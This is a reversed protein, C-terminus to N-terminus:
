SLIGIPRWKDTKQYLYVVGTFRGLTDDNVAGIALVDDQIGMASGFDSVYDPGPEPILKIFDTLCQASSLHSILLLLLQVRLKLM